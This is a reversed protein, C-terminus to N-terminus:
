GNEILGRRRGGALRAGAPWGLRSASVLLRGRLLRSAGSM